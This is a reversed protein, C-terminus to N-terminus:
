DNDTIININDITNNNTSNNDSKIDMIQMNNKIENLECSLMPDDLISQLAYNYADCDDYNSFKDKMYKKFAKKENEMNTVFEKHRKLDEEEKILEELKENTMECIQYIQGDIEIL